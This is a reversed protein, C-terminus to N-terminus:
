PSLTAPAAEPSGALADLTALFGEALRALEDYALNEARDDPGHYHPDRAESTDSLAVAPFGRWLFPAHDSRYVDKANTALGISPFRSHEQFLELVRDVVPANDRNSVFVVFNGRGPLSWSVLAPYDQSGRENSFYGVSDVGIMLVINEGLESSREAYVRSGMQYGGSFPEEENVFFVVRVSRRLPALQTRRALDRATALLLAVGSANDNAGPSGPVTDYHAGLVLIEEPRDTGPFLAEINAVEVQGLAIPDRRAEIGAEALQALLWAEAAHIGAFDTSSPRAGIEEALAAVDARLADALLVQAPTLPQTSSPHLTGPSRYLCGCALAAALLPASALLPATLRPCPM